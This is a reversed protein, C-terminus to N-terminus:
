RVASASPAVPICTSRPTSSLLANSFPSLLVVVARASSASISARACPRATSLADLPSIIAIRFRWVNLSRIGAPRGGPMATACLVPSIVRMWCSAAITYASRGNASTTSTRPNCSGSRPDASVASMVRANYLVSTSAAPLALLCPRYTPLTPHTLHTLHPSDPANRQIARQRLEADKGARLRRVRDPRPTDAHVAPEDVIRRLRDDGLVRANRDVIFRLLARRPAGNEKVFRAAHDRGTAIRLSSPGHEVDDAIFGATEDSDAPQIEGRGTKQDQGGVRPQRVPHGVGRAGNRADVGDGDAPLHRM